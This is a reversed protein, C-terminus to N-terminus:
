EPQGLYLVVGLRGGGNGAGLDVEEAAASSRCGDVVSRVDFV